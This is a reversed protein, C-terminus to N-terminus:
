NKARGEVISSRYQDMIEAAAGPLEDCFQEATERNLPVDLNWGELVDLLYAANKDRTKEMLEVMSFQGDTPKEEKAADFLGDLFEGFETKTRYKFEVEISGEGGELMPVTVLRKFSKPRAGLKIKNATAM